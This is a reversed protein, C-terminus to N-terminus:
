VCMMLTAGLTDTQVNRARSPWHIYIATPNCHAQETIPSFGLHGTCFIHGPQMPVAANERAHICDPAVPHNFAEHRCHLLGCPMGMSRNSRSSMMEVCGYVSSSIRFIRFMRHSSSSVSSVSSASPRSVLIPTSVLRLYAMWRMVAAWSMQWLRFTSCHQGINREGPMRKYSQSLHACDTLCRAHSLLNDLLPPM